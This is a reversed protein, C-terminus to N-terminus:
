AKGRTKVILFRAFSLAAGAFGLISFLSFTTSFDGALGYLASFMAPGVMVGVFTYTLVEGTLTGTGPSAAATEALMVGNWGSGALGAVITAAIGLAPAFGFAGFSLSCLGTLTGIIALVLFGSGLWDAVLGWFVRGVAGFGQMLAAILAATLPNWNFQEILMAVVFASISLQVGSYLFGIIALVGLSPTNWVQKQGAWIGRAVPAKPNKETDWIPRFGQYIAALGLPFCAFLLLAWQWGIVKSLPPLALAALMGGLPVGAQKISFILNRRKPPALRSLVHSSSPNNLAYGIGIMVSGLAIGALTGTAMALFGFGAGILALQGVQGPGWRKVLGSALMSFFVGSAYILSVQYGLLHPAIGLAVAVMTPITTLALVSSTAAIQSLTTLTLASGLQPERTLTMPHGTAPDSTLSTDKM